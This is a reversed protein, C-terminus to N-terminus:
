ALFIQCGKKIYKQTKTCSIISLKSKKEKGSGDGQVILVENAYPIRVIKEDCVIVARHNALWDMSIIVDFSGLEVPMLDIITYVEIIKGDALEVLYKTDVTSPVLSSLSSIEASTLSRRCEYYTITAKPNEVHARQNMSAVSAKCDRTMHGVRKCNSCKVTCPGVYPLNGAYAKKKNARNTYARIVQNMLDHTMHIKTEYIAIAEIVDTVRQAMIQDIKTSSM